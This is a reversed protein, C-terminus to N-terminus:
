NGKSQHENLFEQLSSHQRVATFDSVNRLVKWCNQEQGAATELSSTTKSAKHTHSATVAGEPMFQGMHQTIIAVDRM